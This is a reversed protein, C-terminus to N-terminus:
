NLMAGLHVRAIGTVPKGKDLGPAFLVQAIFTDVYPDCAARTCERDSYTRLVHGDADVKVYYPEVFQGAALRDKLDPPVEGIVPAPPITEDKHAAVHEIVIYQQADARSLEVRKPSLNTPVEHGHNYLRM